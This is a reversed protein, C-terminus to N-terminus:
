WRGFEDEIKKALWWVIAGFAAVGGLTALAILAKAWWAEAAAFSDWAWSLLPGIGLAYCAGMTLGGVVLLVAALPVLALALRGVTTWTVRSALADVRREAANVARVVEGAKGVIKEVEVSADALRQTALATVRDEFGDLRGEVRAMPTEVAKALRGDLVKVAHEGLATTDIRITGRKRVADALESSATATTTLQKEIRQMMSHAAVDSRTVSSGDPLKVTRSSSLTSAVSALTKEIESLRSMTEADPTSPREPQQSTSLRDLRESTVEDMVKVFGTLDAVAKTLKALQQEVAPLTSTLQELTATTRQHEDCAKMENLLGM